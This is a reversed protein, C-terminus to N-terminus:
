HTQMLSSHEDYGRLATRIESATALRHAIGSAAAEVMQVNSVASGLPADELGVRWHLGARMADQLIPATDVDLGAVMIPANPAETALLECYANLAYHRPPFGFALGDSFMLRYIPQPVNGVARDLAAGLRIFGPEYCALSPHFGYTAALQLGRRMSAETNSYISGSKGASIDSLRSINVSGTDLAAWELLNRRALVETFAFRDDGGFAVTPYVIADIQGRIGEIVAIYLDVDDSPLGSAEDYAHFHVIAAGARVSAVGESIIQNVGIPILPQLARGWGGNLAVELWVPAM